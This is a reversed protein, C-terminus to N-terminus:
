SRIPLDLICPRNSSARGDFCKLQFDKVAPLTGAVGVLIRQYKGYYRM